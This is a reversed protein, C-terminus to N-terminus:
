QNLENMVSLKSIDVSTQWVSLPELSELPDFRDDRSQFYLLKVVYTGRKLVCYLNMICSNVTIHAVTPVLLEGCLAALLIFNWIRADM